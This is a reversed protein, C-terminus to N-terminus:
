LVPFHFLRVLSSTGCLVADFNKLLNRATLKKYAPALRASAHGRRTSMAHKAQSGTPPLSRFTVCRVDGCKLGQRVCVYVRPQVKSRLFIAATSSFKLAKTDLFFNSYESFNGNRFSLWITAFSLLIQVFWLALQEVAEKLPLNMQNWSTQNPYQKKKM